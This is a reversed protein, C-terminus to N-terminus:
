EFYFEMQEFTLNETKLASSNRHTPSGFVREFLTRSIEGHYFYTLNYKEAIIRAMSEPDSHWFLDDFDTYKM